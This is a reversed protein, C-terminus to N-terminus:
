GNLLGRMREIKEPFEKNTEIYDNLHEKIESQLMEAIVSAHYCYFGRAWYSIDSYGGDVLLKEIRKYVTL